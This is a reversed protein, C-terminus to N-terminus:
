LSFGTMAPPGGCPWDRGACDAAKGGGNSQTGLIRGNAMANGVTYPQRMAAPLEVSVQADSPLPPPPMPSTRAPTAIATTALTPM